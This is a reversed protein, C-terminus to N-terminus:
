MIHFHAGSLTGSQQTHTDTPLCCSAPHPPPQQGDGTLEEYSVDASVAKSIGHVDLLALLRLLQKMCEDGAATAAPQQRQQQQREHAPQAGELKVLCVGPVQVFSLFM